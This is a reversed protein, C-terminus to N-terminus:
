ELLVRKTTQEANMDVGVTLRFPEGSNVVPPSWHVTMASGRPSLPMLTGESDNDLPLCRLTHHGGM